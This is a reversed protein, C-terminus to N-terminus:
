GLVVDSGDLVLWIERHNEDHVRNRWHATSVDGAEEIPSPTGRVAAGGPLPWHAIGHKREVARL